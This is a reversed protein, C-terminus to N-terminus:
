DSSPLDRSNKPRRLSFFQSLADRARTRRNKAEEEEAGGTNCQQQKLTLNNSKNSPCSSEPLLLHEKRKWARSESAPVPFSSRADSQESQNGPLKKRKM